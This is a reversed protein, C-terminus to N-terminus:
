PLLYMPNIRKGHAYVEFHLHSPDKGHVSVTLGTSGVTGVCDGQKVKKGVKVKITHLHAYRTKYKNNHEVLVTNGFGAPSYSAELVVGDAVVKVPNGRM